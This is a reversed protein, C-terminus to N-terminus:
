ATLCLWVPEPAAGCRPSAAALPGRWAPSPASRSRGAADRRRENSPQSAPLISGRHRGCGRARGAGSRATCDGRCRPRADDGVGARMPEARGPGSRRREAGREGRLEHLLDAVPAPSGAVDQPARDPSRLASGAFRRTQRLGRRHRGALDQPGAAAARGRGPHPMAAPPCGRVQRWQGPLLPSGGPATGHRPRRPPSPTRTTRLGYCCSRTAPLIRSGNLNSSLQLIM